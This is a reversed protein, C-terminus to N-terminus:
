ILGLPHSIVNINQHRKAPLVHLNTPNGDALRGDQGLDELLTIAFTILVTRAAQHDSSQKRAKTRPPRVIMSQLM